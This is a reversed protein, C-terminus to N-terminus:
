VGLHRHILAQDAALAKGAGDFVIEGKAMVVHRDCFELLDALNKDVVM